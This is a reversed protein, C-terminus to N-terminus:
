QQLWSVDDRRFHRDMYSQLIEGAAAADRDFKQKPIGYFVRKRDAAKSTMREDETDATITTAARLKDYFTRAAQETGGAPAGARMSKPIGVVIHGVGEVKAVELIEAIVEDDTRGDREISAHPFIIFSAVDGVALGIRKSGYDIGLITM